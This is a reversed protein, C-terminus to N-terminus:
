APTLYLHHPLLVHGECAIDPTKEQRRQRSQDQHGGALGLVERVAASRSAIFGIRKGRLANPDLVARWDAPVHRGPASTEPDAPDTAVVAYLMDALDPVSRAMTGGFDTLYVLPM